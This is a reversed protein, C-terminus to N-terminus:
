DGKSMYRVKGFIKREQFPRDHSGLCWSIGSYGNPDRGDLSYKDNLYCIFDFARKPHLTWEIVKQGLVNEYLWANKRNECNKKRQIGIYITPKAKELDELNYIYDRKDSLHQEM